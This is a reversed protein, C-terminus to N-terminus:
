DIKSNEHSGEENIKPCIHALLDDSNESTFGCRVCVLGPFRGPGKTLFIFTAIDKFEKPKYVPTRFNPLLKVPTLFGLFLRRFFEKIRDM